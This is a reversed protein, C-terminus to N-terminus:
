VENAMKYITQTKGMMVLLHICLLNQQCSRSYEAGDTSFSKGFNDIIIKTFLILINLNLTLSIDM